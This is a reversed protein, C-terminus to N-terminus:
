LDAAKNSARRERDLQNRVIRALRKSERAEYEPNKGVGFMPCNKCGRSPCNNCRSGNVNGSIAQPGTFGAASNSAMNAAEGQNVLRATPNINQGRREVELSVLEDYPVYHICDVPCTEIAMAITDETDGWQAFVRARGHEDEMFFTSDAITACNTCGICSHEDVYVMQQRIAEGSEPDKDVTAHSEVAKADRWEDEWDYVSTRYERMGDVEDRTERSDDVEVSFANKITEDDFGWEQMRFVKDARDNERRNFEIEEAALSALTDLWSESYDDYGAGAGAEGTKPPSAGSEGDESSSWGGSWSDETTATIADDWDGSSSTTWRDDDDDDDSGSWEAGADDNKPSSSM